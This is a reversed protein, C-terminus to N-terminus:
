ILWHPYLFEPTDALDKRTNGKTVPDLYGFATGGIGINVENFSQGKNNQVTSQDTIECSTEGVLHGQVMHQPVLLDNCPLPSSTAGVLSYGFLGAGLVGAFALLAANRRKGSYTLQKFRPHGSFAM